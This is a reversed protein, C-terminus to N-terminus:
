NIAGHAAILQLVRQTSGDVGTREIVIIGYVPAFYYDYLVSGEEEQTREEIRLVNDFDQGGVSYTSLLESVTRTNENHYGSSYSSGVTLNNPIILSDIGDNAEPSYRLDEVVYYDSFSALEYLGTDRIQYVYAVADQGSFSTVQFIGNSDPAYEMIIDQAEFYFQDGQYQYNTFNAYPIFDKFFLEITQNGVNNNTLDADREDEFSENEDSVVSELSDEIQSDQANVLPGSYISLLIVTLLIAWFNRLRGDFKIHLITM